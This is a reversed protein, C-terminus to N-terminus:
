LHPWQGTRCLDTPPSAHSRVTTQSPTCSGYTASRESGREWKWRDGGRPATGRRHRLISAARARRPAAPRRRHAPRLAPQPRPSRAVRAICVAPARAARRPDASLRVRGVRRQWRAHPRLPARAEGVARAAAPIPHRHEQLMRRDSEVCEQQPLAPQAAPLSRGDEQPHSRTDRREVRATPRARVQRSRTHHERGVAARREIHQIRCHGPLRLRGYGVGAREVRERM